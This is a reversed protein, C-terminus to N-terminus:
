LIVELAALAAPDGLLDRDLAFPMPKPLGFGGKLPIGHATTERKVTVRRDSAARM